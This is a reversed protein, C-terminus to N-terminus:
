VFVAVPEPRARVRSTSRWSSGTPPSSPPSATSSWTSAGASGSTPPAPTTWTTPGPVDRTGRRRDAAGLLRRRAGRAHAGAGPRVRRGGYSAPRRPSRRRRPAARRRPRHRPHLHRQLLAGHDARRAAGGRPGHARPDHGAAGEARGGRRRPGAPLRAQRRGQDGLGGHPGARHRRRVGALADRVQQETVAALAVPDATAVVEGEADDTTTAAGSGSRPTTAGERDADPPRAPPHGPRRRAGAGRDGDPRPHRCPRGQPHRRPPTRPRRRRALDDGGAKDVVVLGPTVTVGRRGRRREGVPEVDAPEDDSEAELDRPSRTRTRRAPTRRAARRGRRRRRAGQGPRAGRRPCAGGRAPRRPLLTLTPAIRTGLQKAVESRLIGKASELAIATGAMEEEGGLVTYFISAQQGDGTIRVDTITVFGLRPDKIRRELMEAVIVQIRDALKRVRPSAMTDVKEFTSRRRPCAPQHSRVSHRRGARGSAFRAQDPRSWRGTRRLREKATERRLGLGDPGRSRACRSRRWSM